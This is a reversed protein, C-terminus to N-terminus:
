GPLLNRPKAYVTRTIRYYQGNSLLAQSRATLTIFIQNLLAFETDNAPVDVVDCGAASSCNRALQYQLSLNEIGYAFPTPSGGNATLTLVPLASNSTDVTYAREDVAYVGSNAPYAPAGCSSKGPCTFSGSKTLTNTSTNVGTISFIEGTGDTHRIYARMGVAFGSSVDVPLSTDGAAVGATLTGRVCTQNPRVLGTRTVIQDSTSNVSDLTVFDGTVPLCAGGLRLDRVMSDLATRLGQLTEIRAIQDRMNNRNVVFFGGATALVSLTLTTAM